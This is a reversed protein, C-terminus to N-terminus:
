LPGWFLSTWYRSHEIFSNFAIVIQGPHNYKIIVIPRADNCNSRAPCEGVARWCGVGARGGAVTAPAVGRPPFAGGSARDGPDAVVGARKRAGAVGAAPQWAIRCRRDPRRRRSAAHRGTRTFPGGTSLGRGARYAGRSPPRRVRRRLRCCFVLAPTAASSPASAGDGGGAPGFLHWLRYRAFV